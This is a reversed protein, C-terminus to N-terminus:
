CCTASMTSAQRNIRHKRGESEAVTAAAAEISLDTFPAPRAMDPRSGAFPPSVPRSRLCFSGIRTPHSGTAGLQIYPLVDFYQASFGCIAM